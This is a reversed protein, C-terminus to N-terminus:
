PYRVVSPTSLAHKRAASAVRGAIHIFDGEDDGRLCLLLPSDDLLAMVELRERAETNKIVREM